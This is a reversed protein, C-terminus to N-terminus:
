IVSFISGDASKHNYAIYLMYIVIIIMIILLVIIVKYNSVIKEREHPSGGDIPSVAYKMTDTATNVSNIVTSGIGKITDHIGTIATTTENIKGNVTDIHKQIKDATDLVKKNTNQIIIIGSSVHNQAKSAMNKIHNGIQSIHTYGKKLLSESKTGETAVAATSSSAVTATKATATAATEATEATAATEAIEATATATEAAAATVTATEAVAATAVTTEAGLAGIAAADAVEGVGPIINLAVLGVLGIGIGADKAYRMFKSKHKKLYSIPLFTVTDVLLKPNTEPVIYKGDKTKEFPKDTCPDIQEGNVEKFKIDSIHEVKEFLKWPVVLFGNEDSISKKDGDDLNKFELPIYGDKIRIKVIKRDRDLICDINNFSIVETM